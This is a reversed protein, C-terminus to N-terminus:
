AVVGWFVVSVLLFIACGVALGFSYLQWKRYREALEYYQLRLMERNWKGCLCYMLVNLVTIATIIWYAM